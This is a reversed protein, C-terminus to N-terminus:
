TVTNWLCSFLRWPLKLQIIKQKVSSKLVGDGLFNYSSQLLLLFHDTLLVILTHWSSYIYWRVLDQCSVQLWIAHDDNKQPESLNTSKGAGWLEWLPARDWNQRSYFGMISVGRCWSKRRVASSVHIAFGGTGRLSGLEKIVAFSFFDLCVVFSFASM